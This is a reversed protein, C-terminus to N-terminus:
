LKKHIFNLKWTLWPKLIEKVECILERGTWEEINSYGVRLSRLVNLADRKIVARTTNRRQALKIAYIAAQAEVEVPDRATYNYVEGLVVKNDNCILTASTADGGNELNDDFNFKTWGKPPEQWHLSRPKCTSKLKKRIATDYYEHAKCQIQDIFEGWETSTYSISQKQLEM